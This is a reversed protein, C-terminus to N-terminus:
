YEHYLWSSLDENLNTTDYGNFNNNNIIKSWTFSKSILDKRSQTTPSNYYIELKSLYENLDEKHNEYGSGKSLITYSPKVQLSTLTLIMSITLFIIKM